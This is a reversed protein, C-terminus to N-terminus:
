LSLVGLSNVVDSSYNNPKVVDLCFKNLIDLRICLYASSNYVLIVPKIFPEKDTPLLKGLPLKVIKALAVKIPKNKTATADM